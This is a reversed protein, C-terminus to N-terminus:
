KVTSLEAASATPIGRPIARKKLPFAYKVGYVLFEESARANVRDGLEPGNILRAAPARRISAHAESGSM